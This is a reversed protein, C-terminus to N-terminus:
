EDLDELREIGATDLVKEDLTERLFRFIGGVRIKAYGVVDIQESRRIRELRRAFSELQEAILGDFAGFAERNVVNRRHDAFGAPLPMAIVEIGGDRGTHIEVEAEPVGSGFAEGRGAGLVEPGAADPLIAQWHEGAGVAQAVGCEVQQPMQETAIRPRVVDVLDSIEKFRLGSVIEEPTRPARNMWRPEAEEFCNGEAQRGGPKAAAQRRHDCFLDIMQFAANRQPEFTIGGRREFRLEMGIFVLHPQM